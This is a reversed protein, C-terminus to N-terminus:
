LAVERLLAAAQEPRVDNIFVGMAAESGALYKLKGPARRASFLQLHLYALDRDVRVPAQQWASVYPMAVGFVGDLRRLVELYVPGFAAREADSLAALDPVQRHPYVHVEFPWRAFAPVFATWHENAAVVREGSQEAALVAAFLNAGDHREAHARASALMRRTRPTVFPYAYIQGHPHHLTVGIEVGRNEFCFVQEVGPLASLEATRDAWAEVVTRVREPSLRAFSSDHASTFCVVECRGTGPRLPVLESPAVSAPAARHSFSPFRNEFVVVDYDAAPIEGRHDGAAPCLPCETAPPLHTRGQRHAAVAVWEDLLPDYRLESAGPPPPLARDDSGSRDARDTEDFYILERGDALTTVTRTIRGTM